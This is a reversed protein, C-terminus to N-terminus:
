APSFLLILLNCVFLTHTAHSAFSHISFPNLFRFWRVMYTCVKSSPGFVLECQKHDSFIEGPQQPSTSNDVLNNSDPNDLEGEILLNLGPTDELCSGHGASNFLVLAYHSEAIHCVNVYKKRRM